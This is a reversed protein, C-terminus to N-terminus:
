MPSVKKLVEILEERLKLLQAVHYNTVIDIEEINDTESTKIETKIAAGADTLRKRNEESLMGPTKMHSLVEMQAVLQRAKGELIQFSELNKRNKRTRLLLWQKTFISLQHAMDDIMHTMKETDPLIDDGDFMDELFAIIEKNLCAATLRIQRSNNYPFVLANITMGVGIGIATDWFRGVAYTIPQIDPTTCLTAIILCPLSPSYRIHFVNYLTIMFVIGIGADLLGPFPLMLLLIGAWAGFFMGVIQTLCSELSEKFSTEMAAMAGLMAFILRSATAGYSSVILMSIVVAAATKITRLGIRIKRKKMWKFNKVVIIIGVTLTVAMFIAAGVIKYIQPVNMSLQSYCGNLGYKLLPEILVRQEGKLDSVMAIDEGLTMTMRMDATYKEWTYQATSPDGTRAFNVWMQQVTDALEVDIHDGTYITQDLNNFVYSLEVAHCAGLSEQEGPYTWYYMYADGGHNVHATTQVIAPVRFVAENYFETLNWARADNQLSMFIDLYKMDNDEIQMINNEYLVPMGMQYIASGSIMTNYYGLERIWYRVEDANTGILMDLACTVGTDYAAYLNEPLVVGDREPYNNFDNLEENVAMLEDESLAMLDDMNTCGTKELLMQTLNQCEQTSYTLAISGSQAIVRNFLGETDEILPLLSVSGAGASEGFITINEPDGGFGAINNKIWKLACVQDLLGLNGSTEFAEGGEVSSFDIFGMLGTRYEVTVLIIDDFKEVLNHGDYMPDSAAGWGYSGGHFFVMVTKDAADNKRNTWINLKLCDEGQVYYSGVESPWETQIPSKGYYYAEYVGDSQPAFIPSKWRLEGVPAEAYPIGKYSIVNNESKGVFTGNYCKVAMTRDYTGTIEENEGYISEMYAKADSVEAADKRDCGVLCVILMMYIICNILRKRM